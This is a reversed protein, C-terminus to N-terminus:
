KTLLNKIETAKLSSTPWQRYSGSWLMVPAKPTTDVVHDILLRDDAMLKWNPELVFVVDGMTRKNISNMIMPHTMAEQATLAISVGEFEMLFNAVQRQIAELSLRKQEILTRNLFIAQGYGGDVWREHGYLAMLYTGVLAACRDVNFSQVSLGAKQLRKEGTGYSPLGVLLLEYNQKGIRKDLQEMLYGLDQNMWLYLDEQEATEIHDTTSNPTATQLELLLMDPTADQGLKEAKQIMLALEIVLTNATPSTTLIRGSEYTFGRKKEEPTPFMYTSIDMRPTWTRQCLEAFRGKMNMEDAASPLGESYYSTSVWRKSEGDIWCCANASHGAMLITPEAHVGIAYIKTQEGYQMRMEDTQTAALLNRASMRRHTGIGKENKDELLSHITRDQRSFYNDMSYGHQMPLLGTMITATTEGGGYVWQEFEVSTQYAEESLTRLGGQSWYPRMLKLNEETMGDVLVVVQLKPAAWSLLTCTLLLLCITIKHLICNKYM